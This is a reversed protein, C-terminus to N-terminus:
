VYLKMISYSWLTYIVDEVLLVVNTGLYKRLIQDSYILRHIELSYLIKVVEISDLNDNSKNSDRDGAYIGHSENITRIKETESDIYKTKHRCAENTTM